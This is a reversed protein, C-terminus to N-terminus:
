HTYFPGVPPFVPSSPPTFSGSRVTPPALSFLRSSSAVPLILIAKAVEAKTLWHTAPWETTQMAQVIQDPVHLARLLGALKVTTEREQSRVDETRERMLFVPTHVGLRSNADALRRKGAAWIYFCASACTGGRVRTTAGTTEVISAIKLADAMAGGPSDLTVSILSKGTKAALDAYYAAFKDGDGRDVKGQIEIGLGTPLSAYKFTASVSPVADFCLAAAVLAANVYMKVADNM